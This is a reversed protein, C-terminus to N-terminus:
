NIKKLGKSKDTKESKTKESKEKSKVKEPSDNRDINWDSHDRADREFDHDNDVELDPDIEPIEIAIEPVDIDIEPIEIDLAPITINVEPISIDHMDINVAPIEFDIRPIQIDIEPINMELNSLVAEVKELAEGVASEINPELLDDDIDIDIDLDRDVSGKAIKRMNQKGSEHDLTKGTDSSSKTTQQAHVTTCMLVLVLFGATSSKILTM